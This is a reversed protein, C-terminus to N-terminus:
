SLHDMDITTYVLDIQIDHITDLTVEPEISSTVEFLYVTM